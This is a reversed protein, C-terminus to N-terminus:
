PLLALGEDAAAQRLQQDYTVLITPIGIRDQWILACALHVADYGRLNYNCALHDARLVTIESVPLRVLSEWESRFMELASQYGAQDVMKLRVARNFAVSVEARSILATATMQADRIWSNVEESGKEEVYRKVLASADLYLIM